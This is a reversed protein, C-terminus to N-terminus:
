NSDRKSQSLTALLRQYRVDTRLSVLEQENKIEQLSHGAAIAAQLLRLADSRKGCVEYAIAAEFLAKGSQKPLRELLALEELALPTDGSKALYGALYGRPTSDDPSTAIQGRALDIARSYTPKAKQRMGPAWRYADGLNGWFLYNTAGLEVAKEMAPVADSFHGQFYRMTGLNSYGRASPEIELARQLASAADEYDELMHYVAALNNLLRVNDPVLNRSREWVKVADEYRSNRYLFIGFETNPIWDNPALGIAKRFLPEADATKGEAVALKALGLCALASKPDLSSGLHFETNAEPRMGAELLANGLAIHGAALDPALQVSKAAYERALNPWQKDPSFLNRRLYAESLGAYGAAYQPNIAIAKELFAIARDINGTKDYRDLCARAARYADSENRIDYWDQSSKPIGASLIPRFRQWASERAAPITLSGAAALMLCAAIAIVVRKRRRRGPIGNSAAPSEPIAGGSVAYDAAPMMSMALVTSSLVPTAEGLSVLRDHKDKRLCRAILSCLGAPLAPNMEAPPPDQFVIQRLTAQASPGHFPRRGCAMEYLIVGFSFIDSRYDVQEGMAQEPSMYAPTGVILGVKTLAVTNGPAVPEGAPTEQKALGFDLVKAVGDAGIMINAPKLDRHVIGAAHAKTLASAVQRAYDLLTALPVESGSKREDLLKNLATGEVYEMAIFDLGAESNYEYITVINPHNLASAAKAERAFRRKDDVSISSGSIVKLAVRRGLKSDIAEYVAGMGGEGIKGAIEYHSIRQGPTLGAAVPEAGMPLTAFVSALAPRDILASLGSAEILSDVESRLRADGACAQDLYSSRREPALQLAQDLIERVKAWPVADSSDHQRAEGTPAEREDMYALIVARKSPLCLRPRASTPSPPASIEISEDFELVDM